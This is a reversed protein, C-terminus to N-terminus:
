WGRGRGSIKLSPVAFDGAFDAEEDISDTFLASRRGQRRALEIVRAAEVLLVPGPEESLRSCGVAVDPSIRVEELEVQRRLLQDILLLKDTLLQEDWAAPITFM